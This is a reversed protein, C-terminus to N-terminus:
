GAPPPPVAAGVDGFVDNRNPGWAGMSGGRLAQIRFAAADRAEEFLRQAEQPPLRGTEVARQLDQQTKVLQMIERNTAEAEHFKIQEAPGFRLAQAQEARFIDQPSPEGRAARLASEQAASELDSAFTVRGANEPATMMSFTGGGAPASIAETRNDVPDWATAGPGAALNLPQQLFGEAQADQWNDGIGVRLHSPSRPAELTAHGGMSPGAGGVVDQFAEDRPLGFQQPAPREAGTPEWETLQEPMRGGADQALRSAPVPAAPGPGASGSTELVPTQQARPPPLMPEGPQITESIDYAAPPMTADHYMGTIRVDPGLPANAQDYLRGAAEPTAGRQLMIDKIGADRALRSQEEERQAIRQRRLQEVYPDLPINAYPDLPM